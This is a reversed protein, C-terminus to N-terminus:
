PHEGRPDPPEGASAVSAGGVATIRHWEAARRQAEAIQSDKMKAAVAARATLAEKDGKAAALNFWKHAEVYNQQVGRGTAYMYGLSLEARTLGSEAAKRSWQAAKAYDQPLGLGQWYLVGLEFEAEAHGQRAARRLLAVTRAYSQPRGKGDRYALALRYEAPAYGNDAAQEFLDAARVPDSRKGHGDDVYFLALRYQAQPVGAIAAYRLLQAAKGDDRKVGRGDMYMAGLYFRAMVDGKRALPGMVARATAYDGERYAALGEAYTTATVAAAPNAIGAVGLALVTALTAALTAAILRPLAQHGRSITM